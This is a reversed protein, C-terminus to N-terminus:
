EVTLVFENEAIIEYLTVETAVANYVTNVVVLEQNSATYDFASTVKITTNNVISDIIRIESNVAIAGGVTIMGMTNAVNFKTNTGTLWITGNTAVLGSLTRITVPAVLTESTSLAADINEDIHTVEAFAKFGAPHVLEKFIKKYKSFEVTSTTLYSYNVLYGNGQLKRDASSLIGDSTVWRGDFVQYSPTLTANATATGDGIASLDITPVYTFGDGPNTILIEQIEGPKRDGSPIIIEGDGQLAVVDVIAGSGTSSHVTATPLRDQKYGQGGILNIGYKRIAERHEKTPYGKNQKWNYMPFEKHIKNMYEDRYTKALVSAAAISM